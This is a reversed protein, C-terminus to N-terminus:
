LFSAGDTFETTVDPEVELFKRLAGFRRELVSKLDDKEPTNEKPKMWKKARSSDKMPDLNGNLKNQIQEQLTLPLSQLPKRKSSSTSKKKPVSDKNENATDEQSVPVPAASRSPKKSQSVARADKLEIEVDM